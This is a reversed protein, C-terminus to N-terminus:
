NYAIGLFIDKWSAVREKKKKKVKNVYNNSSKKVDELVFGISRHVNTGNPAYAGYKNNINNYCM